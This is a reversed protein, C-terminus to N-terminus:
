AFTALADMDLAIPDTPDTLSYHTNEGSSPNVYTSKFTCYITVRQAGAPKAQAISRWDVILKGTIADFDAAHCAIIDSGTENYAYCETMTVSDPKVSLTAPVDGASATLTGTLAADIYIPDAPGYTKGSEYGRVSWAGGTIAMTIYDTTSGTGTTFAIAPVFPSVSYVGQHHLYYNTTLTEPNWFSTTEYVTDMCVFFDETTLIAYVDPIPFEDVLVVRYQIEMDTRNFAAALARVDVNAMVDPTTILVLESPDVWVPVQAFGNHGAANYLTSPFRLKGAYSRAATLFDKATAETTPLSNSVKFFGWNTEYEAILQLMIRYEDYNDSNRPVTTIANILGNLGTDDVFARRLEAETVSIPYKDARDVSHYWVAAEPRHMKLLQESADDYSHARIFNCAIEQISSGYYMKGKKFVGLPNDFQKNHIVTEGIRNILVDMFQNKYQRNLPDFLFRSVAAVGQQTADPVRQAYDNTARLAVNALITANNVAM